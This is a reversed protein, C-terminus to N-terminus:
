DISVRVCRFGVHEMSTDPTNRMRRANRYGSCWDDHCLFSGGRIAKRKEFTGYIEHSASPGLPDIAIENQEKLKLYYIASYWDNTWEWVNGAMDYLGYGNPPFSKVPATREFGDEITNSFPFEGQLHNANHQGQSTKDNGWPYMTNKLGGRMAYEWEAETPLRKGAWKAYAQADYWSVHIVPHDEKGKISSGSGLPHKWSVEPQMSWWNGFNDKSAGKPAYSFVLSAPLLNEAPPKPTGPPLQKKFEEWDIPREAVTVYNTANVFIGFQANTVEHTDMWFDGVQVYHKPLEDGQALASKPMNEFGDPTDGGMEFIGGPIKMMGSTDKAVKPDEKIESVALLLELDLDQSDMEPAKPVACGLPTKDEVQVESKKNKVNDNCAMVGIATCIVFAKIHSNKSNLKILIRNRTKM